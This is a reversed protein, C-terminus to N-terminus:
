SIKKAPNGVVKSESDVDRIVNSGLGILSKNGVKIGNMLRSGSGIYCNEGVTVGGAITVNSGILSFKKIISDHHITTNPLICVHDEIVANSTIVVGAMILVNKGISAFKSLRASPSIVTAFLEDPINLEKILQPRNKYSSPSGSVALVKVENLQKLVSRPYVEFGLNNRGHKEPTDDIFGILEFDTGLCDVAEIGNGNFPFIFLKEM